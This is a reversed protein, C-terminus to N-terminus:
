HVAAKACDTAPVPPKAVVPPAPTPPAAAGTTADKEMPVLMLLAVPLFVVGLCVKM